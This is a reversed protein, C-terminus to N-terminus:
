KKILKLFYFVEDPAMLPFRSPLLGKEVREFGNREYFRQAAKLVPVTGLFLEGISSKQCYAVLVELLNQAAHYSKGRYAQKVFMKRIAGSNNDFKILAITGILEEGVFAGWFNGGGAIYFDEIDLLDPQDKISIAINFEVQQIHLILKVVQDTYKNNLSKIEIEM